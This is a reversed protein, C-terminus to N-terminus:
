FKLVGEYKWATQKGMHRSSSAMHRFDQIQTAYM